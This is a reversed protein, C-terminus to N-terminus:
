KVILTRNVGDGVYLKEDLLVEAGSVIRVQHTGPLIRLAGEGERYDDVSGMDLNDVLVRAGAARYGETRFALSPRNDVVAQKETPFQTCAGISAAGAALIAAALLSTATNNM